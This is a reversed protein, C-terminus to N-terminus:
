SSFGINGPEANFEKCMRAILSNLESWLAGGKQDNLVSKDQLSKARIKKALQRERSRRAADESWESMLQGKGIQELLIPGAIHLGVKLPGMCCVVNAEPHFSM